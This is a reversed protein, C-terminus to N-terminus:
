EAGKLSPNFADRLGNGFLNFCIMLLSIIIAPILLQYPYVSLTKQTESLIVGLSDVAQLGLGLYSITAESFITSPVMLVSSTIIPGIANPLIHRFILRPTKAGLTRSALVYERDRYRYFQSRTMSETGIWGTLCLALAFVFFTQGLKISLVTMIVIWPIGVLIDTFREMMLDVLGGFYGSISGWIIGITINVAAVVVGLILSTRLGSFVYKLLDKGKAETGFLHIPMKKYGLYKYMLVTCKMTYIKKGEADTSSIQSEVERVYVEGSAEGKETIKFTKPAADNGKTFDYEIYGLDIWKQFTDTSIDMGKRWGYVEQYRDVVLDCKMSLTNYSDFRGDCIATWYYTNLSGNSNEKPQQVLSNADKIVADSTGFSIGKLKRKESSSLENGAATTGSVTFDKVHFTTKFDQEAKIIFGLSFAKNTVSTPIEKQAILEDLSLTVTEHQDITMDVEYTEVVAGYDDSFDTLPYLDGDRSFLLLAYEPIVYETSDATASERDAADKKTGLTYTLTYNNSELNFETPYCYLYGTQGEKDGSAEKSITAYGGSGASSSYDLYGKRINKIAKIVNPDDYEGVYDDYNLDGDENVGYPLPMSKITTTGDWFGTGSPFLKMPLNTEYNHTDKINYTLCSPLLFALVFLTGLIIGGVVSSKNKTFRRFADKLFTTPRTTFKIDHIKKDQQVLSFKTGDIDHGDEDKAIEGASFPIDIPDVTIELRENLSSLPASNENEIM